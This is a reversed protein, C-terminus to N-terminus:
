TGNNLVMRRGFEDDFPTSMPLLSTFEEIFEGLTGGKKNYIKKIKYLIGAYEKALFVM